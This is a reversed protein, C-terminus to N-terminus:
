CCGARLFSPPNDLGVGTGGYGMDDLAPVSSAELEGAAEGLLVPTDLHPVCTQEVGHPM